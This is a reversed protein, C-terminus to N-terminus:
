NQLESQLEWTILVNKSFSIAAAEWPALGTWRIM